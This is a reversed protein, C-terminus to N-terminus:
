AEVANNVTANSLKNCTPKVIVLIIPRRKQFGSQHTSLDVVAVIEKAQHLKKEVLWFNNGYDIPEYFNQADNFCNFQLLRDSRTECAYKSTIPSYTLKTM